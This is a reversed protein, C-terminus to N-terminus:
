ERRFKKLVASYENTFFEFFSPDKEGIELAFSLEKRLSNRHHECIESGYMLGKDNLFSTYCVSCRRTVECNACNKILSKQYDSLINAIRGFDLGVDIDGIPLTQNVRECIHFKGDVDVYIKRGPICAGTCPMFPYPDFIVLNQFISKTAILGFLGDFFSLRKKNKLSNKFDELHEVYYKKARELQKRHSQFDEKSFQKYYNCGFNSDVMSVNSVQPVNEKNFFDQLKFLDMKWDFVPLSHIKEYGQEMAYSVNKMVDKFTGRGNAYVRNRDHEEEPGDLSVAISFDRSMLFDAKEKDLLSGNITIPHFIKYDDYENEIYEVCKKILKFNLLPEGGYFGITPQRLPNYRKGEELLLLYYDIAKKATEFDMYKHSYGRIYEYSDSYICYKCRFNCDETACLTLQLLGNRLTAEQIEEPKPRKANFSRFSFAKLKKWENIWKYYYSVDEPSFCSGLEKFAEEESAPSNEIIREMLEFYPFVMGTTDEYTYLSGNKTEIVEM